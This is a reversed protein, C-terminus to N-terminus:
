TSGTPVLPPTSPTPTSPPTETPAKPTAAAALKKGQVEVGTALAQYPDKGDGFARIEAPFNLYGDPGMDANMYTGFQKYRDRICM